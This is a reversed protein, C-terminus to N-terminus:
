MERGPRLTLAWLLSVLGVSCAELTFIFALYEHWGAMLNDCGKNSFPLASIAFAEGILLVIVTITAVGWTISEVAVDRSLRRFLQSELGVAVLLLPIAQSVQGFYQQDVAGSCLSDVLAGLDPNPGAAVESARAALQSSPLGDPTIYPVVTPDPTPVSGPKYTSLSVAKALARPYSTRNLHM